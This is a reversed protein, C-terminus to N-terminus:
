PDEPLRAGGVSTIRRERHAAPPGEGDRLRSPKRQPSEGGQEKYLLDFLADEQEKTLRLVNIKDSNARQPGFLAFIFGIPVGIVVGVAVGMGIVMAQLTQLQLGIVIGLSIAFALFGAGLVIVLRKDM